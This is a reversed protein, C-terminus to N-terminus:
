SIQLQKRKTQMTIPSSSQIIEKKQKEKEEAVLGAIQLLINIEHKIRM